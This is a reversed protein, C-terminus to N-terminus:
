DNKWPVDDHFRRIDSMGTLATVAGQQTTAVAGAANALALAREGDRVGNTVAALFGALFVDGAGTTDVVDVDYGDHRSLGALPSAGTGFCLAGDEGLTLVVTHPGHAAIDRALAAPDDGDFGAVTLDAPSATLVDVHDLAGRVVARYTHPTEWLEPRWNPDLSVTTQRSARTQLDLMASRSPEVSLPVGSTHVWEVSELVDESVAGAEMRTDAGDERYFSFSRDGDEDHTVLALSTRADPDEILLDAPVGAEELRDRLFTGFDDTALRSWFLPPAGLRALAVAVNAPAGGFRPAYGGAEVPPGPREPVFDVLAEGAILVRPDCTM